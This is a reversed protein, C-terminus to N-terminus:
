LERAQRIRMNHPGPAGQGSGAAARNRMRLQRPGAGGPVPTTSLNGAQNRMRRELLRQRAEPNLQRISTAGAGGQLRQRPHFQSGTATGADADQMAEMLAERIPYRGPQGQASSGAAGQSTAGSGEPASETTGESPQGSETAAGNPEDMTPDGCGRCGATSSVLLVLLAPFLAPIRMQTMM